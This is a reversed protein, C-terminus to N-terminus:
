MFFETVLTVVFGGFQQILIMVLIILFAIGAMFVLTFLTTLVFKSATYEHIRMMGIFLLLGTYLLSIITLIELFGSETPLLVNSLAIWVVREIIIPMLSYATIIIIEKFKGKGSMLTCIMWNSIIWLVILGVTQVFVWLSNFEGPDYNTFLFGGFIVKVVASVYFLALIIISLKVSGKGKDKIEEFSLGPHVLTNFMLSVEKNKIIVIKRKMSIILITLLVLLALAIILFIGAFNEQIYNNRHYKYALAYTERDYGEKAIEMAEQYKGESLYVRALGTYALQFNKDEKLVEQWGEKTELYDGELTQKNLAMVKKGYENRYFITLSNNTSDTVIIDNGNVTIASANTFTGKQVGQGMGGGFATIMRCRNDYILIRGYTADLCYLYNDDCVDLGIIRQTFPSGLNYTRNVGDDIFKKNDSDLINNGAGPNLKKIQGNNDSDTATYIFDSNDIVIDSFCFPLTRARREAKANNPFMRNFLSQIAGLINNTVTNAGYFGVFSKDPAYLLAGYYSGESLVYLFGKTDVVAKIPKYDFNEPILPSDPLGYEDIYTGDNKCHIVRKNETDCIYLTNDKHVYISSANDFKYETEGMVKNIENVFHYNKDLIIIRSKTDLIYIYGNEAAYVDVLKTFNDVGIDQAELSIKVNYMPRNYVAKRGSGSVNEWYTYSEYPVFTASEANTPIIVIGILVIISIILVTIRKFIINKM